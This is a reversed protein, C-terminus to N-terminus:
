TILYYWKILTIWNPYKKSFDLKEYMEFTEKFPRKESPFYISVGHADRMRHGLTANFIIMKELSALLADAYPELVEITLRRKVKKVFDVLDIYDSQGFMQASLFTYKLAKRDSITERLVKAFSDLEKAVHEVMALNYASQTVDYSAREYYDAYFQVLQQGMDHASKESNLEELIRPYDWGTAPELYQSGVVVQANDKLQYAIEFMGMLCADFGLVDIKVSSNLAKQLEINDLFDKASDDFAIAIEEVEEKPVFYLERKGEYFDRDDVGSGHSWIVVMLKDSPYAQASEEIFNKLVLPDGANTEGLRKIETLVGAKIHYRLTEQVDVFEWRDLQVIVDIDSSYSGQRLSELDNEAANNLNNDAAMYILLTLTPNM